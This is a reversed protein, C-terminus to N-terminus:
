VGAWKKLIRAFLLSFLLAIGVLGAIYILISELGRGYTVLQHFARLALGSPLILSLKQMWQPMVEMPWWCGSLASMVLAFMIAFGVLKEEENILFGLCLGIAGVTTAFAIVLAGLAVFSPGYYVGFVFRGIVLLLLIQVLGVLSVGALKGIFLQGFSVPAIRIRRLLGANKEDQMATGAYIFVVMMTFMIINAPVQFNYGTPMIKYLGSHSTELRVLPKRATLAQINDPTLKARNIALETLDALLLFYARRIALTATAAAELNADPRKKLILSVTDQNMLATTFHEPIILMRTPSEAPETTLTDIELNESALKEILQASLFGKDHNLIGLYATDRSHDNEYKFVNGFILIYICPMLLMWIAALKDSVLIRLSHLAINVIAKV